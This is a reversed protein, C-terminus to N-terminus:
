NGQAKANEAWKSWLGKWSPMTKDTKRNRGGQGQGHRGHAEPGGHVQERAELVRRGQWRAGLGM